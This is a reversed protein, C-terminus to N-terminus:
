NGAILCIQSPIFLNGVCDGISIALTRCLLIFLGKVSNMTAENKNFGFAAQWSFVRGCQRACFVLIQLCKTWVASSECSFHWLIMVFFNSDKDPPFFLIIFIKNQQKACPQEGLQTALTSHSVGVNRLHYTSNKSKPCFCTNQLMARKKICM